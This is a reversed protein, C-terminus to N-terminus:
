DVHGRLVPWCHNRYGFAGRLFEAHGITKGVNFTIHEFGIESAVVVDSCQTVNEVGLAFLAAALLASM